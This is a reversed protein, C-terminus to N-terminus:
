ILMIVIPITVMSLLTSLFVFRSAFLSDSQHQEALPATVSAVPMAVAMICIGLVTRDLNWFKLIVLILLPIFLLRVITGYYIPFGRFLDAPKLDALMAGIIMMALPTTMAGVMQLTQSLAMPLKLSFFFLSMGILVALVGPNLCVQKWSNRDSKGSFISVGYTWLFLNFVVVYVSTLFVGREGFLGAAVPYGMFGCNTFITGFKLIKGIDNPIRRFLLKGVIIALLHVTVAFILVTVAESFMQPSYDFQCSAIVMFPAAVNLLLRNLGKILEADLWNLKRAIYGVSMILFLIVIQNVIIGKDM